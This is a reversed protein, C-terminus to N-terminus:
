GLVELDLEVGIPCHDSGQVEPHITAQRLHPLAGPSVLALDIRWGINRERVGVRQSWWTYHGPSSNFHRFSDVWGEALWSRLEAREEPLFGSTKQNERPRALDREEPATNFDGLVVVPEGAHLAGDLRARLRRYFDLKFPVRSNDRGRGSGNPFYANVVLLRGFRALQLRGEADIPRHRLTTTLEEPARRSFLGVGSYGKREGHSFHRHWAGGSTLSATLQEPQARVEQLAVIDAEARGLWEGFGKKEAARLGNVNWSLIRLRSPM